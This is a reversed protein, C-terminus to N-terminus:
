HLVMQHVAGVADRLSFVRRENKVEFLLTQDARPTFANKGVGDSDLVMGM